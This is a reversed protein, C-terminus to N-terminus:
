FTDFVSSSPWAFAIGLGWFLIYGRDADMRGFGPVVPKGEDDIFNMGYMSTMLQLPVFMTTVLALIYVVGQEERDRFARVQDRLADCVNMSRSIEEIFTELHDEVDELYRTVDQDISKDHILHKIVRVMPRAKRQLWDLEVKTWLLKKEVDNNATARRKAIHAAYWQLRARFANLIPKMEDVCVDVLRWMLWSSNGSRLASFDKKIEKAVSDFAQTADDDYEDMDFSNFNDDMDDFALESQADRTVRRQIDDVEAQRESSTHCPFCLRTLCRFGKALSLCCAKASWRHIPPANRHTPMSDEPQHLVWKTQVSIVTDFNPPGSVFLALRAQEVEVECASTVDLDINDGETHGHTIMGTDRRPRDEPSAQQSLLHTQSKFEDFLRRSHKTLRMLPIIIFYNQGYCRVTPVAHQQLQITDEVPLPHLQYKVALRLITVKSVSACHVWRMRMAVNRHTLFVDLPRIRRFYNEQVVRPNWDIIGLFGKEQPWRPLMRSGNVRSPLTGCLLHLKLLRLVRHFGEVDLFERGLSNWLQLFGSEDGGLRRFGENELATKCAAMDMQERSLDVSNKRELSGLYQSGTMSSPRELEQSSSRSRGRSASLRRPLSNSDDDAESGTCADYLRAAHEFTADFVAHCDPGDIERVLKYGCTLAVHAFVQDLEKWLTEDSSEQPRVQELQPLQPPLAPNELLPADLGEKGLEM